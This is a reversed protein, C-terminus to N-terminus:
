DAVGYMHVSLMWLPVKEFSQNNCTSYAVLDATPLWAYNTRKSLSQAPHAPLAVMAISPTPTDFPTLTSVTRRILSHPHPHPHTLNHPQPHTLYHPHSLENLSAHTHRSSHAHTHTHKSIHPDQSYSHLVVAIWQTIILALLALAGFSSPGQWHTEHNM